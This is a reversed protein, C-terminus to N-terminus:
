QYFAPLFSPDITNKILGMIYDYSFPQPQDNCGHSKALDPTYHEFQYVQLNHRKKDYHTIIPIIQPEEIAFEGAASRVIDFALLAGLMNRGPNMTSILNGISYTLLCKKGDPRDVWKIPEIVHPHMGIIVDVNLDALHQAIDKQDYIPEFADEAGWHMVVFVLDAIKKAATVHRTIVNKDIMPIIMKSSKPLVMGNTGYTYNLVAIKVGKKEYVRINEYDESDTYAGVSLVSTKEKWFNISNIYGKEGKDLMHNNALAIIDFGLDIMAQGAEPPSNFNPYGSVKFESGAIPTEQNVLSIDANRVLDAIDAYMDIFRYTEGDKARLKADDYINGHIINDGAALFSLRLESAPDNAGNDHTPHIEAETTINVPNQTINNTASQQAFTTTDPSQTSRPLTSEGPTADGPLGRTACGTM